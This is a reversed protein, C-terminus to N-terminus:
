KGLQNRSPDLRFTVRVYRNREDSVLEPETGNFKRMAHRMTLWGRGRREMLGSVVMANAMMENRSRPAGGSRAQEVTMHNPLAGPSTVVIRDDFAELLVQSGTIAYDRHIVANVLAERLAQAPVPPTDRRYHGEYSERRGLSRFWGMARTVQDELRGKGEGASLVEAARDEGGYAACQVFLSLTHPFSQPDRGFTMLGYLTPRLIGDLEDVVSANRLDDERAPQPGEDMDLGQAQMYARVAGFDIDEVTASPIIQKETLVLGFANLLEQLESPSPAVTARGRRIWFRGDHSFPEYGRQHRHVHVWHVWGEGTEQRGCEATVPKGCGTQLFSTLREQVAGPSESVGAVKGGNDIGIVLLGGDGNAFACLTKGIGPLNRTDRKFETRANEGGDIRRRVDHWEM